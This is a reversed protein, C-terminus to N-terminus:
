TPPRVGDLELTYLEGALSARVARGTEPMTRGAAVWAAECLRAMADWRAEISEGRHLEIVEGLHEIREITMGAARRAVARARRDDDGTYM